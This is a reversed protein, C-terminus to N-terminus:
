KTKQAKIENNHIVKSLSLKINKIIKSTKNTKEINKQKTETILCVKHM